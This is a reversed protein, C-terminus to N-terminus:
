TSSLWPLYSSASIILRRTSSPHSFARPGSCGEVSVLTLLRAKTSRLWPFYSSVSAILRRASYSLSFASPCSCGSVSALTRMKAETSELWSFYSAAFSVLQHASSPTLLPWVRQGADAAQYPHQLLLALPFRRLLHAWPRQLPTLLRQPRLM